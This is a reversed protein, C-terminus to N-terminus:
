GIKKSIGPPMFWSLQGKGAKPLDAFEIACASGKNFIIFPRPAGSLLTAALASISPEHGALCIASNLPQAFLWNITKSIEGEPALSDLTEIKVYNFREAIIEATQRARILPSSAMRDFKPVIQRLGGSVEKLEDRGRATLERAADGGTNHDEAEGHRILVVLM